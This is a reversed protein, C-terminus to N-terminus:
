FNPLAKSDPKNKAAKSAEWKLYTASDLNLSRALFDLTAKAGDNRVWTEGSVSSILVKTFIDQKQAETKEEKWSAAGGNANLVAMLELESIRHSSKENQYRIRHAIGRMFGIQIRWGQYVYTKNTTNAGTLLPSIRDYATAKVDKGNNYRIACAVENEGLRALSPLELSFLLIFGLVVERVRYKM